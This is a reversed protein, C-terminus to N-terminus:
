QGRTSAVAPAAAADRIPVPRDSGDWNSGDPLRNEVLRASALFADLGANPALVPVAVGKAANVVQEALAWDVTIGASKARQAIRDQTKKNFRQGKAAAKAEPHEEHPPFSQLYLQGDQLRSV